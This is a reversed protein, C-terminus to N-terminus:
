GKRARERDLKELERRYKEEVKERKRQIKEFQEQLKRLDTSKKKQILKLYDAELKQRDRTRTTEIEKLKRNYKDAERDRDDSTLALTSPASCPAGFVTGGAHFGAIVFCTMLLYPSLRSM